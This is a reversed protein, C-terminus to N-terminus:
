YRALYSIEIDCKLNTKILTDGVPLMPLNWGYFNNIDVSGNRLIEGTVGDVVIIDGSKVNTFTFNKVLGNIYLNAGTERATLVVRAPTSYNGINTLNMSTTNSATTVTTSGTTGFEAECEFILKYEQKHNLRTIDPITRVYCKYTYPIDNFKVEAGLRLMETLRSSNSIYEQESEARMFVTFTINKFDFKSEILQPNVTDWNLSNNVKNPSILKDIVKGGFESIDKGNIVM